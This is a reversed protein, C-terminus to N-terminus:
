RSSSRPCVFGQAGNVIRRLFVGFPAVSRTEIVYDSAEVNGRMHSSYGPNGQENYGRFSRGM